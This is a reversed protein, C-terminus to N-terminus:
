ILKHLDKKDTIGGTMSQNLASKLTLQPLNGVLHIVRFCYKPKVITSIIKQLYTHIDASVSCTLANKQPIGTRPFVKQKKLIM